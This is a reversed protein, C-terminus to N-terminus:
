SRALLTPVQAPIERALFGLPGVRESLVRGAEGGTDGDVSQQMSKFFEEQTAALFCFMSTPIM